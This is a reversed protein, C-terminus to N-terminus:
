DNCAYSKYLKHLEVVLQRQTLRCRRFLSIIYSQLIKCEQKQAETYSNEFYMTKGLM